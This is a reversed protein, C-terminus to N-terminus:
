HKVEKENLSISAMKGTEIVTMIYTELTDIAFLMRKVEMLDDVASLPLDSFNQFLISRKEECFDKIFEDYAHQAKGGRLQEMSLHEQEKTIVATM